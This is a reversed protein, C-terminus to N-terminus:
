IKSGFAPDMQLGSLKLDTQNTMSGAINRIPNGALQGCSFKTPVFKNKLATAHKFLFYGLLSLVLSIILAGLFSFLCLSAFITAFFYCLTGLRFFLVSHQYAREMVAIVQM